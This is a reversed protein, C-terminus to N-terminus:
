FFEIVVIKGDGGTGGAGSDGVASIGGGGGGGGGSPIGGNGGTGASAAAKVGGGGGGSGGSIFYGGAAAGSPANAGNGGNITGTEIGGLAATYQAVGSGNVFVGGNGAQQATVANAGSGGAGGIAIISLTDAVNNSTSQGGNTSSTASASSIFLRWGGGSGAAGSTTTGGGGGVGGAASANAFTTPNGAVGPNGNNADTTQAAGGAGGTGISYSHTNDFFSDPGELLFGGGGGGGGGGASLASTGKRGSGGGGGGGWGFVKIYKTRANKTWTGSGTTYTTILTSAAEAQFTPDSSAGNSTLVYGSTGPTAVTFASNGEAIVIGHATLGSNTGISAFTPSRGNGAGILTKGATATGVNAM